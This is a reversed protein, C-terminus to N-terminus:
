FRVDRQWEDLLETRGFTELREPGIRGWAFLLLDQAPARAAVDCKAHAREVQM